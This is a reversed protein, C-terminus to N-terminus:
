DDSQEKFGCILTYGPPMEPAVNRTGQNCLKCPAGAGCECGGSVGENWPRKRHNECVWGEGKCYPCNPDIM